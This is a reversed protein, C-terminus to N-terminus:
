VKGSIEKIKQTFVQRYEKYKSKNSPLLRRVDVALLHVTKGTDPIVYKKSWIDGKTDMWGIEPFILLGADVSYRSLYASIQRVDDIDVGYRKDRPNLVKWKADGILCAMGDETSLFILDPRLPFVDTEGSEDVHRLLHRREARSSLIIDQGKLDERLVSRLTTEFLDHLTFMLGFGPLQGSKVPNSFQNSALATAFVVVKQWPKEFPSLHLSSALSATLPVRKVHGLLATTVSLIEKTKSSRTLTSLCAATARVLRTLDNDANLPAHRIPILHSQSPLQRAIVSFDIRGRIYTGVERVESYRRPPAESILLRLLEEAFARVIVEMLSETTGTGAQFLCTSPVRGTFKLIELLFQSDDDFSSTDSIKPVIQFSVNGVELAGVVGCVRIGRGDRVFVDFPYRANVNFLRERFSPTNLSAPLSLRENERCKIPTTIRNM